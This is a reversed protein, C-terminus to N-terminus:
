RGASVSSRPLSRGNAPAINLFTALSNSWVGGSGGTIATRLPFDQHLRDLM